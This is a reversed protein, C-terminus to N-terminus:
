GIKTINASDMAKGVPTQELLGMLPRPPTSPATAATEQSPSTAPSTTNREPSMGPQTADQQLYVPRLALGDDTDTTGAARVIGGGALAACAAIRALGKGSVMDDGERLPLHHIPGM